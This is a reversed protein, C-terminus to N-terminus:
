PLSSVTGDNQRQSEQKSSTSTLLSLSLYLFIFLSSVPGKFMDSDSPAAIGAVLKGAKIRRTLVDSIEPLVSAKEFHAKPQSPAAEASQLSHKHSICRLQCIAPPPPRLTLAARRAGSSCKSVSSIM